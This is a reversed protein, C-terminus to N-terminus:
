GAIASRYVKGKVGWKARAAWCCGVAAAAGRPHSLAYTMRGLMAWGASSGAGYALANAVPIGRGSPVDLVAAMKHRSFRWGGPGKWGAIRRRRQSQQGPGQCRGKKRRLEGPLLGWMSLVWVSWAMRATSSAAALFASGSKSCSCEAGSNCLATAHATLCPMGMRSTAAAAWM